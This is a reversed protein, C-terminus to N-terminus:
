GIRRRIGEPYYWSAPVTMKDTIQLSSNRVTVRGGPVVPPGTVLRELGTLLSFVVSTLLGVLSPRPATAADTVEAASASQLPTTSEVAARSSQVAPTTTTTETTPSEAAAVEPEGVSEAAAKGAAVKEAHKRVTTEGAWVRSM